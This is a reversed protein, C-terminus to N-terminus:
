TASAPDRQLYEREILSEIRKKVDIPQPTCAFWPLLPLSHDACLANDATCGFDAPRGRVRVPFQLQALVESLLLQHTLTKRM